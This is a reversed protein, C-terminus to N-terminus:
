YRTTKPELALASMGWGESGMKLQLLGEPYM